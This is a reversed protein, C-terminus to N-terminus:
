IGHSRVADRLRNLVRPKSFFSKRLGAVFQVPLETPRCRSRSCRPAKRIVKLSRTASTALFPKGLALCPKQRRHHQVGAHADRTLVRPEAADDVALLRPLEEGLEHAKLVRRHEVAAVVARADIVHVLPCQVRGNTLGVAAEALGDREVVRNLPQHHEVGDDLVRVV